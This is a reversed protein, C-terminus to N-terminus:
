SIRVAVTVVELLRERCYRFAKAIGAQSNDVTSIQVNPKPPVPSLKALEAKAELGVGLLVCQFHPVGPESLWALAPGASKRSTDEGDTLVVLVPRRKAEKKFEVALIADYLNTGGSAEVISLDVKSPAVPKPTLKKVESNFTIVMVRDDEKLVKLLESIGEKAAQLKEGAMSGSIDLLIVVYVPERGKSRKAEKNKKVVLLIETGGGAAGPPLFGAKQPHQFGVGKQPQQYGDKPHRGVKAEKPYPRGGVAAAPPVFGRGCAPPTVARATL